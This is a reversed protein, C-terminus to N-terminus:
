AKKFYSIFLGGSFFNGTCWVIYLPGIVSYFLCYCHVLHSGARHRLQWEPKWKRKLMLFLQHLKRGARGVLPPGHCDLFIFHFWGVQMGSGGAAKSLLHCAM